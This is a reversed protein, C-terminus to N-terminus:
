GFIMAVPTYVIICSAVICCAAFVTVKIRRGADPIEDRSHFQAAPASAGPLVLGLNTCFMIATGVVTPNLGAALTFPGVIPIMASGFAINSGVNTLLQMCVVTFIVLVAGSRGEFIPSFIGMLWPLVGTVENTLASAIPIIVACMMLVPWLVLRHAIKGFPICPEGDGEGSPLVILFAALLTYVGSLTITGNLFKYFGLNGLGPINGLVVVAVTGFYAVAIRKTRPRLTKSSEDMQSVDYAQVRSLDIKFILIGFFWYLTVLVFCLVTNVAFQFALNIPQGVLAAWQNALGLAWSKYTMMGTGATQCTLIGALGWYRFNDKDNSYGCAEAISDWMPYLLLVSPAGLFGCWSCFYFFFWTYLKPKGQVFKLSLSWRAFWPGFGYHVLALSTFSLVMIQYVVSSGWMSAVAGNFTTYGCSGFAVFGLLSVPMVDWVTYGIVLGLFMGLIKMGMPTLTAFPPVVYGFGFMLFVTIVMGVIQSTKYTKKGAALTGM